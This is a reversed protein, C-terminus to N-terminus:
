LGTGTGLNYSNFCLKAAVDDRNYINLFVIPESSVRKLLHVPQPVKLEAELDCVLGHHGEEVQREEEANPGM